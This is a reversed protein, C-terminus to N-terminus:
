DAAFTREGIQWVGQHTVTRRVKPCQAAEHRVRRLYEEATDPEAALGLLKQLNRNFGSSLQQHFPFLLKNGEGLSWDPEGDVPLAQYIGFNKLNYEEDSDSDSDAEDYELPRDM